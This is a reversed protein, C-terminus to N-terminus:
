PEPVRVEVRFFRSSPNVPTHWVEDALNTKGYVTYERLPEAASHDPSWELSVTGGDVSIGTIRFVDNANTPDTAAVYDQWFMLDSGGFGKKGSPSLLAELYTSAGAVSLLDYADVWSHPVEVSRAAGSLDTYEVIESEAAASAPTWVLNRLWASDEGVAGSGDKVYRWEYVHAGSTENTYAFGAFDCIGDIAAVRSGDVLFELMDCEVRSGGTAIYGPECSTRWEFRIEGCGSAQLRVAAFHGDALGSCAVVNTSGPAAWAGEGAGVTFFVASPSASTVAAICSWGDIGTAPVDPVWRVNSIWARDPELSDEWDRKAYSWWIERDVSMSFDGWKQTGSTAVLPLGTDYTSFDLDDKCCRFWTNDVWGAVSWRFTVTGPSPIYVGLASYSYDDPNASLSVNGSRLTTAGGDAYASDTEELWEGNSQNVDSDFAINDDGAVADYKELSWRAMITMNSEVVTDATVRRSTAADYWWAFRHGSGDRVPVPLTGLAEGQLFTLSSAGALSGGAPDLTVTAEALTSAGKWRAYLVDVNEDALTEEVHQVRTEVNTSTWWGAFAWGNTNEPVPLVAYAAGSLYTNSVVTKAMGNVSGGQADFTVPFTNDAWHAYLVHNSPTTVLTAATVASGGAATTFWGAFPHADDLVASPLEGYQAGFVVATSATDCTGGNADFTVTYQRPSWQAYLTHDGSAVIASEGVTGGDGSADASWGTFDYGTRVASPLAGYTEGPVLRLSETECEGGNPDFQVTVRIDNWIAHLNIVAGSGVGAFSNYSVTAGPAFSPTSAGSSQSWGALAYGRRSLGAGDALTADVATDCTQQAPVTGDGGNAHYAIWYTVGNRKAYLRTVSTDTWTGGCWEGLANFYQTGTGNQGTWYGGFTFYASYSPINLDAQGDTGYILTTSTPGSTAGSNTLTVTYTRASWQAYLEHDAATEVVTSADVIDDAGPLTAALSWGAFDYGTRSPKPLTGYASDYTVQKSATSVTGGNANFSVTYVNQTWQATLQLDVTLPSSTSGLVARDAYEKGDSDSWNKFSWGTRAFSNAKLAGTNEIQQAAMTGTGGGPLFSITCLYDIHCGQWMKLIGAVTEATTDWGNEEALSEIRSSTYGTGTTVSYNGSGVASGSYVYRRSSSADDAVIRSYEAAMAGPSSSSANYVPKYFAYRKFKYGDGPRTIQVSYNYRYASSVTERAYPIGKMSTSKEGVYWATAFDNTTIYETYYKTVAQVTCAALALVMALGPKIRM